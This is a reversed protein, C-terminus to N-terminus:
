VLVIDSQTLTTGGGLLLIEIDNNYADVISNTADDFYSDGYPDLILKNNITDYIFQGYNYTASVDGAGDAYTVFAVSDGALYYGSYNIIGDIDSALFEITDEGSVFNNLTDIGNNKINQNVYTDADGGAGLDITDDGKAGDIRDAGGNGYIFNDLDNGRLTDDYNTGNLSEIFDLAATSVLKDVLANVNQEVSPEIQGAAHDDTHDIVGDGNSDVVTTGDFAVPQLQFTNYIGGFGIADAKIQNDILFDEWESQQLSTVEHGLTPDGDSLFFIHNNADAIYGGDQGTAYASQTVRLAEDYYTAGFAYFNYYDNIITKASAVDMWSDSGNFVSTAGSDFDVLRVATEGVQAYADLLAVAAEKANTMNIGGMSGSSDLVITVNSKLATKGTAGAANLAGIEVTTDTGITGGTKLNIDAPADMLSLDLMDGQGSNQEDSDIIIKKGAGNIYFTDDGNFGTMTDDGAKSYFAENADTGVLYDDGDTGFIDTAGAAATIVSNLVQAAGTYDITKTPDTITITKEVTVDSPLTLDVGSGSAQITGMGTFIDAGGLKDISDTIITVYKGLDLQGLTDFTVQGNAVDIQLPNASSGGTIKLISDTTGQVKQLDTDDVFANDALKADTLVQIDEIGSLNYNSADVSGIVYLTDYGEGGIITEVGGDDDENYDVYDVNALSLDKKLQEIDTDVATRSLDGVIIFSDDGAGGDLLDVGSGGRLIDNGDGGLLSDNLDTGVLYDDRSTGDLTNVTPVIKPLNFKTDLTQKIDTVTAIDDTVKLDGNFSLSTAYDAPTFLLKDATYNSVNVRNDFQNFAAVTKADDPNYNQAGPAYTDIAGILNAVVEGKSVGSDLLSTWYDIGDPDDAATKNLTNEYIFSIFDRNDDLSSGFYDQSAQTALMTDAVDALDGQSQWYKNGESESARGFLAVYLGSVDSKSLAM